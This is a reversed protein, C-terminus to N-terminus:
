IGCGNSSSSRPQLNGHPDMPPPGDWFTLCRAPGEPPHERVVDLVSPHPSERDCEELSFNRDDAAPSADQHSPCFEPKSSKTWPLDGGPETKGTPGTPGTPCTPCTPGTPCTPCPQPPQNPPDVEGKPGLLVKREKERDILCNPGRLRMMRGKRMRVWVRFPLILPM